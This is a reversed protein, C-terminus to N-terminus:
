EDGWLRLTQYEGGRGGGRGRGGRGGRGGPLQKTARVSTDIEVTIFIYWYLGCSFATGFVNVIERVAFKSFDDLGINLHTHLLSQFCDMCYKEGGMEMGVREMGRYGYIKYVRMVRERGGGGEM